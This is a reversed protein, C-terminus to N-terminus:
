KLLIVTGCPPYTVVLRGAGTIWTTNSSTYVGGPMAAGNVFLAHIFQKGDFPLNLTAADKTVYLDTGAPLVASALSLTGASLVTSGTYTAVTGALSLTGAGAKTLVAGGVVNSLALTCAAAPTYMADGLQTASDITLTGPQAAASLGLAAGVGVTAATIKYSGGTIASDLTVTNTSADSLALSALYSSGALTDAPASDPTLKFDRVLMDWYAGGTGGGFGVYAYDSGLTTPLSVGTFTNTVALAGQKMVSTLTSAAPDYRVVFDTVNSAIYLPAFSQALGNGDWAGNRGLRVTDKNGDTNGPYFYWRVGLSKQMGTFGAEGTNGNSYGPGRPDNHFFLCFADAPSGTPRSAGFLFTFSATWADAVRVRRSTTATGNVSNKAPCPMLNNDDWWQAQTSFVWDSRAGANQDVPELSSKRLVLGGAELRVSLNSTARDIDGVLGLAGTGRKVLPGPGTIADFALYAPGAATTAVAGGAREFTFGSIVNEAFEGGTRGLFGIYASNAGRMVYPLNVNPIVTINTGVGSQVSTVTIARAAADYAVTFDAPVRNTISVPVIADTIVSTVGNTCIKLRTSHIAGDYYRWQIALGSAPPDNIYAAGERENQLMFCFYDAPLLSAGGIDYHFRATWSGTIPYRNATFVSGPGQNLANTSTAVVGPSKWHATGNLRWLGSETLLPPPGAVAFAASIDASASLNLASGSAYALNGLIFGNQRASPHLVASLTDSAGLTVAGGHRVATRAPTGADFSFATFTHMGPSGGTGATLGVYAETAGLASAVNVPLTYTHDNGGARVRVTLTGAGDYAVTIYAPASRLDPTLSVPAASWVGNTGCRLRQNYVDFGIAFSNTIAGTGSYGLNAGTSGLALANRADNQLVLAFGDAATASTTFVRWIFEVTWAASVTRKRNLFVSGNENGLDRTLLILGDRRRMASGNLTWREAAHSFSNPNLDLNPIGSASALTYGLLANVGSVEVTSGAAFTYAPMAPVNTYAYNGALGLAGQSVALPVKSVQGLTLTGAGTKTVTGGGSAPDPLLANDLWARGDTHVTLGNAAVLLNTHNILWDALRQPTRHRLTAGDFRVLGSRLATSNVISTPTHDLFLVSGGKYVLRGGTNVSLLYTSNTSAGDFTVAMDSLAGSSAVTIGYRHDTQQSSVLLSSAGVDVRGTVYGDEGFIFNQAQVQSNSVTLVPRCRHNAQGNSNDLCLGSGEFLVVSDRIHLSPSQPSALTGTGRGVTLWGNLFRTIGGIIDLRPSALTKCGIWGSSAYIVNSQGPAGIIMRGKEVTFMAYENTPAVGNVDYTYVGNEKNPLKSKNFELFGPYTYVLTGEGTKIFAGGPAAVRGAVTLTAAPDAVEIVAARNSSAGPLLTYGRNLTASPGTYRFTGEGIVLNAPDASSDGLADVSAIELIGTVLVTSGLYSNDANGLAVRGGYVKLGGAGSIAGNLALSQASVASVATDGSLAVPASVDNTGGLVAIFGASDLTLANGALTYAGGAFQLGRLTLAPDALDNTVTLAGTGASFTATSGSNSAIVGGLWNAPDNWNGGASNTWTGSDARLSGGAFVALLVMVMRNPTIM